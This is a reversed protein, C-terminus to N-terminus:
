GLWFLNKGIQHFILHWSVSEHTAGSFARWSQWPRPTENLDMWVLNLHTTCTSGAPAARSQLCSYGHLTLVEPPALTHCPRSEQVLRVLVFLEPWKQRLKHLHCNNLGPALIIAHVWQYSFLLKNVDISIGNTKFIESLIYSLPDLTMKEPSSSLCEPIPITSSKM